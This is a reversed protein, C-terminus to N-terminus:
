EFRLRWIGLSFFVAAFAILVGVVPLIGAVGQGRLIVDNFGIMAWTTPLIKVVAQYASPTVELPWWAGGLASLLMSFM